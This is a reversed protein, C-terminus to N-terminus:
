LGSPFTYPAPPVKTGVDLQIVAHPGLPITRPDGAFPRGDLYATVPGTASAVQTASLKQNWLDFYNGLTYTRQTPSEIHIVGDATHSHLWYFCAGALVFPGDASQEVTRPPAIGIGEPVVGPRGNVFVALHAHIHFIVQEQTQCQIGDVTVGVAENQTTGLLVPTSLSPAATTTTGGGSKGGGCGALAAVALAAVGLRRRRRRAAARAFARRALIRRPDQSERDDM